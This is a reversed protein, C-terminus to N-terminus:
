LAAGSIFICAFTVVLAELSCCSLDRRLIHRYLVRSSSSLLCPTQIQNSISIAHLALTSRRNLVEYLDDLGNPMVMNSYVSSGRSRGIYCRTERSRCTKQSSAQTTIVQSKSTTNFPLIALSCVGFVLTITATRSSSWGFRSVMPFSFSFRTKGMSVVLFAGARCSSKDTALRALLLSWRFLGV